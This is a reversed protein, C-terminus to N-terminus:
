LWHSGSVFLQLWFLSQVLSSESPLWSDNNAFSGVVSIPGIGVISNSHRANTRTSHWSGLKSAFDLNTRCKQVVWDAWSKRFPGVEMSKIKKKTVYKM